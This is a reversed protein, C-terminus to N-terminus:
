NLVRLTEAVHSFYQPEVTDRVAFKFKLAKKKKVNKCTKCIYKIMKKCIYKIMKRMKKQSKRYRKNFERGRIKNYLILICICYM